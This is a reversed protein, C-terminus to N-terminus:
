IYISKGTMKEMMTELNTKLHQQHSAKRNPLVRQSATSICPTLLCVSLYVAIIYIYTHIHTHTHTHTHIHTYIYIHIHIHIHIYIHTHTHTYIHTHTHAHIHTHTHLLAANNIVVGASWHMWLNGLCIRTITCLFMM